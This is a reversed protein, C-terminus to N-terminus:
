QAPAQNGEQLAGVRQADVSLQAYLAARSTDPDGSYAIAISSLAAAKEEPSGEGSFARAVAPSRTVLWSNGLGIEGPIVPSQGASEAGYGTGFDGGLQEGRLIDFNSM